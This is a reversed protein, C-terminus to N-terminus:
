VPSSYFTIMRITLVVSAACSPTTSLSPILYLEQIDRCDVRTIPTPHSHNYMHLSLAQRTGQSTPKDIRKIVRTFPNQPPFILTRTPVGSQCLRSRLLEMQVASDSHGIEPMRSARQQIFSSSPLQNLINIRYQTESPDLSCGVPAPEHPHLSPRTVSTM